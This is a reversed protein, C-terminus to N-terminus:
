KLTGNCSFGPQGWLGTALERRFGPVRPGLVAIPSGGTFAVGPGKSVVSPPWGYSADVLAQYRLEGAPSTAAHPATLRPWPTPARPLAGCAAAVATARAGQGSGM